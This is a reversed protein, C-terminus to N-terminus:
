NFNIKVGASFTRVQPYEAKGGKYGGGTTVEPDFGEFGTITIPNQADVYVRINGIYKSAQGLKNGAINYGLTINRFRLFSANQYGIDTGAGGPLTVSALNYAIGPLTGDPNTQSNWIRNAYINSNSNQNALNSANAWDWAYNYKMVGIQSYMFVDLDFNKYKFTNGFGFYIDPVLNKHTIDEITIQGDKTRDVIIPYGPYKAAAPQSAPANSMDANIIGSTEYYYRLSSEVKGHIEYTNYDYNPMREIWFSNYRSLTLISNWTFEKTRINRTNLTADWGQRRMHGGNIPYSGFMSLGATNASGLMNTIDNQFVDFNGSIRDKFIYFDIGANMMTTKQWTVEPYDLGNLTIPIFITSNGNFMIKNGSPGFTGYLTSGLNDSGTEGYSARVKLLNLWKIDKLFSENSVKWALSVSPFFAYKKNPFFKDTGDRRLTTAIVYRDLIDFNARIFQSRKEDASRSSGPTVVGTVAGLNDNGIADHQGNYAVNMQNANNLYRGAGIVGDVTLVKGFKKNFALTAEMTENTRRNEGLNGRSQLKQDFYVYSPIFVSRSTTELNNGYLLRGNLLDKIIKIDAVFNLYTGSNITNDDIEQMGVANPILLFKTYVGDEDRVPLNSPYTLAATLAGSAEPGRGGSTGGVSSNMYNNRNVNITSTLKIFSNLQVSVNSRLAYREMSSNAVSGEQNFYNGSIYYNVTKSGGNVTLNHNSVSGSKLVFSQWDTNLAEAIQTETFTPTWKNDYPTTGYPAMKNNYLFQEKSFINVNSMYEQANLSTPYKYNEVVSYSGDYSVKLPGEKGKKTTILIVGNAAGIGYISASADKLVEVSEIDEPNIGALGSRNVSSPIVTMTGGSAPELSSGPMIVGDVVYIPTGAGRISINVNGGPQASAVTAQLGAARGMLLQSMNSNAAKIVDDTKVKAISTTLNKRTTTGYGMAIVEEIGVTSEEMVVNFVTQNGVTFEQALMGVFSFQLSGADDPISLSFDGNADTVIGVTTGKVIVSVGPMPLGQADTVKGTVVKKQQEVPLVELVDPSPLTENKLIVIQREYIKYSNPTESFLQDLITEVTEGNAVISVERGLDISKEDYLFIFESNDEIQQFVQRVSTREMKLNFKVAQSYSNAATGAFVILTFYTLLKMKLLFNRVGKAQFCTLKRKKKM